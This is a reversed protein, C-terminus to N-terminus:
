VWYPGKFVDVRDIAEPILFHVDAYGQGHAHSPLNIPIGDISLAVDTGHDADFGRLFLQDAKGGGQHQAIVLGPVVRLIDEPTAYPRVLLSPERISGSSASSTPAAAEVTTQYTPVTPDVAAASATDPADAPASEVPAAAAGSSTDSVETSPAADDSTMASRARALAGTLLLVLAVSARVSRPM